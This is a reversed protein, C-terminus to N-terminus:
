PKQARFFIWNLHVDGPGVPRIDYSFNTFGAKEFDDKLQSPDEVKVDHYNGSKAGDYYNSYYDVARPHVNGYGMQACMNGNNKLVRFFESILSLRNEYVCIHQMCITSYVIDYMSDSIGKLDVGNNKYHTHPISISNHKIWIEANQLNKASIDVGDIRNFLHALKVINRGPGCGFDLATKGNTDINKFLFDDYDKWKNHADFSGVVPDRFSLSWRNAEDSNIKEQAKAYENRNAM